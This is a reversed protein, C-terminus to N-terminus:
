PRSGCEADAKLIELVVLETDYNASRATAFGPPFTKAARAFLRKRYEVICRVQVRFALNQRSVNPCAKAAIDLLNYSKPQYLSEDIGLEKDWDVLGARSRNSLRAEKELPVFEYLAVPSPGQSPIPRLLANVCVVQNDLRRAAKLVATLDWIHACRADSAIAIAAAFLAALCACSEAVKMM